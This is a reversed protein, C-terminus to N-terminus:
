MHLYYPQLLQVFEKTYTDAESKIYLVKEEIEQEQFSFSAIVRILKGQQRELIHLKEFPFLKVEAAAEEIISMEHRPLMVIFKGKKELLYSVLIALEPLQLSQSHLAVNQSHERRKLHNTFFPPNSIIVDYKQQTRMSFSQISTHIVKIQESFQSQSVNETAQDFAAKDIEVADIRANSRQALMLALLGTGTGIDLIRQAGEVSASAGLICSDTCVKM